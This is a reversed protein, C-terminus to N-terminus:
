NGSPFITVVTNRIWPGGAQDNQSQFVGQLTAGFDNKSPERMLTGERSIRRFTNAQAPQIESSHSFTGQSPAAPVLGAKAKSV